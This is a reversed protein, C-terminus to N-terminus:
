ELPLLLGNTDLLTEKAYNIIEFSDQFFPTIGRLDSVILDFRGLADIERVDGYFISCNKPSGNDELLPPILLASNSVEVAVVERAGRDLAALTFFGTGCGLDLVRSGKAYRDLAALYATRRVEDNIMNGFDTVSYSM